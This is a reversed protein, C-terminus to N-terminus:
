DEGRVMTFFDVRTAAAEEAKAREEAAIRTAVPKLLRTEVFPRHETEQWMADFIAALRARSRDTGLVHGHGVTGSVLRITARSVTAEGLNFAAGGGGIRGRVMVLGTEPGRLAAFDPKPELAEWVSKLETATARALLDTVRKRQPASAAEHQEATDM